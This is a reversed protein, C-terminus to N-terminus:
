FKCGTHGSLMIMQEIKPRKCCQFNDWYFLFIVLIRDFNAWISFLCESFECLSWFEGFRTVSNTDIFHNCNQHWSIGSIWSPIAWWALSSSRHTPSFAASSSWTTWTQRRCRSKDILLRPFLCKFSLFQFNFETLVKVTKCRKNNSHREREREKSFAGKFNSKRFYELKFIEIQMKSKMDKQACFTGVM